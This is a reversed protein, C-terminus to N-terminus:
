SAEAARAEELMRLVEGALYLSGTVLIRPAATGNRSLRLAQAIDPATTAPMGLGRALAAIDEPATGAHGGPIPVATLREALGAFNKLFGDADKSALMACVIHLPRPHKEELAALAEALAAGGAPNHGGDLWIEAGPPAWDSLPPETVRQLRAPWEVERLGAEIARADAKLDPLARLCAIAAGANEIQHRGLLRPLPLDLLGAEDQYVMRGREGYAQWQSGSVLLPAGVAEARAEIARLAEPLQAAVVAPVGPKLIGAKEGAIAALTDGLYQMHDFSVPTIITAAPRDIVNTADLRGGLGVELLLVDAPHRAFLVFGAATTIEFVTIPEGANVAECHALVEILEAESVYRSGEPAGLRFREHFSVLHPSTYVHVRRGAAELMARMFAITSGKGNTGAVHVVPPVHREPHGLQALLREIRGLSLDIERPHLRMLRDLIAQSDQM